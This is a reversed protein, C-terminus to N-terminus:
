GGRLAMTKLASSPLVHFNEQDTRTSALMREGPFEVLRRFEGFEICSGAIGANGIVGFEHREVDVVMGGNRGEAKFLRDVEDDDSRFCRQNGAQGINQAGLADYGETGGGGCGM